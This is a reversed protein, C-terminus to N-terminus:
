PLLTPQLPQNLKSLSSPPMDGDKAERIKWVCL